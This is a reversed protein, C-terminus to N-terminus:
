LVAIIGLSLPALACGTDLPWVKQAHCWTNQFSSSTKTQQARSCATRHLSCSPPSCTLPQPSTTLASMASWLHSWRALPVSPIVPFPLSPQSACVSVPCFPSPLCDPFYDRYCDNSSIVLSSGQLGQGQYSKLNGTLCGWHYLQLQPFSVKPSTTVKVFSGLRM